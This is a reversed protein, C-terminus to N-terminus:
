DRISIPKDLIEKMIMAQKLNSSKMNIKIAIHPQNTDQNIIKSSTNMLHSDDITMRDELIPESSTLAPEMEMTKLVEQQPQNLTVKQPKVHKVHMKNKYNRIIEDGIVKTELEKLRIKTQSKEESAHSVKGAIHQVYNKKDKSYKMILVFIIYIIIVEM